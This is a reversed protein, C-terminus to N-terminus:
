TNNEYIVFAVNETGQTRSFPHFNCRQIERQDDNLFWNGRVQHYSLFHGRDVTGSRSIVSILRGVADNRSTSQGSPILKTRLIGGKDNDRNLYFPSFLGIVTRLSGNVPSNCLNCRTEVNQQLFADLLREVSIAQGSPNLMLLHLTPVKTFPKENWYELDDEHHNCMPNSCAYSVNYKTLLPVNNLGRLPLQSLIPDAMMLDNYVELRPQQNEANWSSPFNTVLFPIASPMAKLIRQLIFAPWDLIIGDVIIHDSKLFKLLGMRHFCLFLSIYGCINGRNILGKSQLHEETFDDVRQLPSSDPIMHRNHPDIESFYSNVM